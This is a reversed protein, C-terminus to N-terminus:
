RSSNDTAPTIHALHIKRMESYGFPFGELKREKKGMYRGWHPNLLFGICNILFAHQGSNLWRGCSSIRRVVGGKRRMIPSSSLVKLIYRIRLQEWIVRFIWSRCNERYKMCYICIYSYFKELWLLWAWSWWDDTELASSHWDPTFMEWKMMNWKNINAKRISFTSM